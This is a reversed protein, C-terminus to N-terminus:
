KDSAPGKALAARFRALARRISETHPDLELAEQQHKVANAYDGKAYYCHALTDLLGGLRHPSDGTARALEISKQSLEVAEDFDGETNAVM